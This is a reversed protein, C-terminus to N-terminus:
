AESRENVKKEQGISQLVSAAIAAAAHGTQLSKLRDAMQRRIGPHFCIKEAHGALEDEQHAILAAGKQAFYLANEREQGPFPKFILVPVALQVAESLTIGGAKTVICSAQGMLEHIHEVYGYVQVRPQVPGGKKPTQFHSSLQQYLKENRGCVIHLRVGPIALLREVIKKTDRLIGYAGALILISKTDADPRALDYFPKRVPIGSVAIRHQPVGRQILAQKVDETAVFFRDPDPHLWLSHLAYDTIVAFTPIDLGWKRRLASIGGFPFTYVVADPKEQRLIGALTQRGLIDMCKELLSGSELNRTRYYSWGYYDLGYASLASSKIFLYKIMSNIIPHAEQLLDVVKVHCTGYDLLTQQLAKATQVHGDGYGATLIVIKRVNRM